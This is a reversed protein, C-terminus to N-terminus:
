PEGEVFPELLLAVMDVTAWPEAEWVVTPYTTSATLLILLRVNLAVELGRRVGVLGGALDLLLVVCM